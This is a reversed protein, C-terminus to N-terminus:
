RRKFTKSLFLLLSILAITAAALQLPHSEPFDIEQTVLMYICLILGPSLARILWSNPQLIRAPIYTAFQAGSMGGLLGIAAGALVDAPWHAGVAIRAVGAGIALGFLWLWSKRKGPAVSFYLATALAFATLTHGSPMSLATLPKGLIHFTAEDLVGAPRPMELALKLIRGLGGAVAGACVGAALARPALLLLPSALSFVYWGNGFLDFFVWVMDPLTQAAHNVYLFIAAPTSTVTSLLWLSLPVLPLLWALFSVQPTVQFQNRPLNTNRMTSPQLM